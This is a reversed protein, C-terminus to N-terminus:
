TDVITTYLTLNALEHGIKWNGVFHSKSITMKVNVVRFHHFHRSKLEKTTAVIRGDTIYWNRAQHLHKWKNSLYQKKFRFSRNTRRWSPFAVILPLSSRLSPLNGIGLCDVNLPSTWELIAFGETVTEQLATRSFISSCLGFVCASVFFCSTDLIRNERWFELQAWAYM